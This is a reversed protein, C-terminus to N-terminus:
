GCFNRSGLSVPHSHLLMSQHKGPTLDQAEDVLICNYGTIQPNQLQYLKLYGAFMHATRMQSDDVYMFCGCISTGDQPMGINKNSM